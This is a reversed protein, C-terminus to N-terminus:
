AKKVWHSMFSSFQQLCVVSPGLEMARAVACM